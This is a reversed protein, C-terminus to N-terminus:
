QQKDKVLTFGDIKGVIRVNKAEEKAPITGFSKVIIHVDSKTLNKKTLEEKMTSEYLAEKEGEAVVESAFVVEDTDKKVARIQFLARTNGNTESM